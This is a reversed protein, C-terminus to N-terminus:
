FENIRKYKNYEVHKFLAKKERRERKKNKKTKKNKTEKRKV